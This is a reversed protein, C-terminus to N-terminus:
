KFQKLIYSFSIHLNRSLSSYSVWSFCCIYISRYYSQILLSFVVWWFFNLVLYNWWHIWANILIDIRWLIRWFVSYKKVWEMLGTNVRSILVLCLYWHFVVNRIFVSVFIRLLFLCVLDTLVLWSWSFNIGFICAPNVMPFEILVICWMLLVFSLGWLITDISLFVNWLIWCWKRIFDSLM